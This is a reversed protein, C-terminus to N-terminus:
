NNPSPCLPAHAGIKKLKMKTDSHSFYSRSVTGGLQGGMSKKFKPPYLGGWEFCQPPCDGETGGWSRRGHVTSLLTPFIISFLTVTILNLLPLHTPLLNQLILTLPHDSKVFKAYKSSPLAVFTPFITPTLFTFCAYHFPLVSPTNATSDFWNSNLERM